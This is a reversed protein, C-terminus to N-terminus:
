ILRDLIWFVLVLLWGRGPMNKNIDYIADVLQSEDKWWIMSIAKEETVKVTQEIVYYEGADRRDIWLDAPTM